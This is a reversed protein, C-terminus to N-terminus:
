FSPPNEATWSGQKREAPTWWRIRADDSSPEWRWVLYKGFAKPAYVEGQDLDFTKNEPISYVPIVHKGLNQRWTVFGDGITPDTVGLAAGNQTVQHSTGSSISSVYIDGYADFHPASKWAVNDGFIKAQWADHTTTVPHTDGTTLNYVYVDSKFHRSGNTQDTLFKSYVVNAGSIDVSEINEPFKVEVLTHVDGHVLDCVKVRSWSKEMNTWDSELWVVKGADAAFTLQMGGVDSSALLKVEGTQLNRAVLRWAQPNFDSVPFEGYVAYGDMVVPYGVTYGSTPEFVSSKSSQLDLVQIKRDKGDPKTWSLWVLKGNAIIPGGFGTAPRYDHLAPSKGEAVPPSSPRVGPACGTTMLALALVASCLTRAKM